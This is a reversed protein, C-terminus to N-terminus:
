NNVTGLQVWRDSLYILMLSDYQGLSLAGSLETVGATDAFTCATSTSSVIRVVTGDQVGTEGMTITCGNADNCTCNVYGSTPTLTATAPSAGNAEAVTLTQVPNLFFGDKDVRAKLNAFAGDNYFATIAAGATALTSNSYLRISIASAGDAPQGKINITNLGYSKINTAALENGGVVTLTGTVDVNGTVAQDGVFTNAGLSAHGTRTLGPGSLGAALATTDPNWRRWGSDVPRTRFVGASLALLIFVAACPGLYRKM